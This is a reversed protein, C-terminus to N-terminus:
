LGNQTPESAVHKRQEVLFVVGGIKAARLADIVGKVSKYRARADAKIYVRKEGSRRIAEPVASTLTSVEVRDNGLYITGNRLVAIIVADERGAGSVAKPANVRPLDPGSGHHPPTIVMFTFLLTFVISLYITINIGTILPPLRHRM